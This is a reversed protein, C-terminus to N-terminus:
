SLIQIKNLSVVLNLNIVQAPTIFCLMNLNKWHKSQDSSLKKLSTAVLAIVLVVIIGAVILGALVKPSAM